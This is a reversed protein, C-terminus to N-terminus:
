EKYAPDVLVPTIPTTAKGRFVVTLVGLLGVVLSSIVDPTVFPVVGAAALVSFLVTFLGTWITKSFFWPKTTEM